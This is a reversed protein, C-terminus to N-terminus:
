KKERKTDVLNSGGRIKGKKSVGVYELLSDRLIESVTVGDRQSKRVARNWLDDEIRFARLNKPM